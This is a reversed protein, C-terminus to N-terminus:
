RVTISGSGASAVTIDVKRAAGAYGASEWTGTDASGSRRQLFGAVRLPGSGDDRVELRVAGDNPVDIAVPGSGARLQLKLSSGSQVLVTAPGSGTDLTLDATSDPALTARLPGSGGSLSARYRSGAGPLAVTLPGSGGHARLTDLQLDVLDLDASGSGGDVTLDLPVRTGLGLEWRSSGPSGPVWPSGQPRVSITKDNQGGISFAAEPRGQIHADLLTAPDASAFVRAPASSLQLTVSARRTAGVPEHFTAGRQAAPVAPMVLGVVVLVAAALATYPVAWPRRARLLDLGLGIALLPWLRGLVEMARPPVFGTAFLLWLLGGVILLWPLLDRRRREETM